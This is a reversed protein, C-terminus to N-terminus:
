AVIGEMTYIAVTGDAVAILRDDPSIAIKPWREPHTRAEVLRHSEIDRVETNGDKDSSINWSGRPLPSPRRKAGMARMGRLIVIHRTPDRHGDIQFGSDLEKTRKYANQWVKDLKLWWLLGQYTGHLHQM